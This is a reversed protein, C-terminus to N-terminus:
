RYNRITLVILLSNFLRLRLGVNPSDNGLFDSEHVMLIDFVVQIVRM